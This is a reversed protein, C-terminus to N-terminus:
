HLLKRPGLVTRKSGQLLLGTVKRPDVSRLQSIVAHLQMLFLPASQHPHVIPSQAPPAAWCGGPGGMSLQLAPSASAPCQRPQGGRTVCMPGCCGRDPPEVRDGVGEPHVLGM